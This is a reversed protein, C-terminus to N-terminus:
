GSRAGEQGTAAAMIREQTAEARSLTATVRGEHLVVVRDAMGLIEPLESSILVIAMGAAALGSVIRHVEAKAGIDIGRTPEDLILIAPDVALWRAIVVKQQNGGSLGDVAQDVGTARVQLREAYGDALARERRHDISGLLRSLRAVLPLSINAAISFGLVLGQDHRDEPVYALGHRIADGPSAIEILRGGIRIEGGDPPDIGFLARAVETRGAGVLGALGLIEGRRVEFSIDRFVGARALRRVELAVEGIEAHEKPFLSDIRRGVMHRITEAPSLAAVPATIVRRGDRLVSVRDCLDFVEELRHDVFLVAVGHRRLQRVIAFLREVERSSLAATPEDMVLVRAEISLAKAIEILQQDAVPLGRVPTTVKLPVGLDAFLAEAETHVRSWSVRGLWTRPLRGAFVNEAVDLDPFLNPQQHMVAVGLERAAAPGQLVREEGALLLTGRDPQHVGALIKVLTSKGAGNEGVLGHVEGPLLDLDVDRLAQVGAFAKCIGRLELLPSSAPTTM